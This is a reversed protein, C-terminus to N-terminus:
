KQAQNAENIEFLERSIIRKLVSLYCPHAAFFTCGEDRTTYAILSTGNRQISVCVRWNKDNEAQRDGPVVIYSDDERRHALFFRSLFAKPFVERLVLCQRPSSAFSYSHFQSPTILKNLM